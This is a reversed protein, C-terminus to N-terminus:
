TTYAVALTALKMGDEESSVISYRNTRVSGMAEAASALAEAKPFLRLKQLVRQLFLNSHETLVWVCLFLLLSPTDLPRSTRAVLTQRKVHLTM